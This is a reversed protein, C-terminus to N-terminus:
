ADASLGRAAGNIAAGTRALMGCSSGRGIGWRTDRDRRMVAVAEGTQRVHLCECEALAVKARSLTRCRDARDTDAVTERTCDAAHGDADDILWPAACATRFAQARRWQRQCAISSRVESYRGLLM